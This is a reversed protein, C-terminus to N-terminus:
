QPSRVRRRALFGGLALLVVSGPEPVVTDLAFYGPTNMGLAGADSSSLGFELSKVVGLSALEVYEWSDVIYDLGNDAYRSRFGSLKFRLELRRHEFFTWVFCISAYQDSRPLFVSISDRILPFGQPVGRYVSQSPSNRRRHQSARGVDVSWSM